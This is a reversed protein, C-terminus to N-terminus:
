GNDKWLGRRQNLVLTDRPPLGRVRTRRRQDRGDERADVIQFLRNQYAEAHVTATCYSDVLNYTDLHQRDSIQSGDTDATDNGTPPVSAQPALAAEPESEDESPDMITDAVFM